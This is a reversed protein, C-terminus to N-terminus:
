FLSISTMEARMFSCRERLPPLFLHDSPGQEANLKIVQEESTGSCDGYKGGSSNQLIVRPGEGKGLSLRGTM